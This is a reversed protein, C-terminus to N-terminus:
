VLVNIHILLVHINSNQYGIIETKDCFPLYFIVFILEHQVITHHNKKQSRCYIGFLKKKKWWAQETLFILQTSLRITKLKKTINHQKKKSFTNGDVKDMSALSVLSM